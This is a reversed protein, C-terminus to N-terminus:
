GCGSATSSAAGIWCSVSDRGARPSRGRALGSGLADTAVASHTQKDPDIGITVMQDQRKLRLFAVFRVEPPCKETPAIGREKDTSPDRRLRPTRSETFKPTQPPPHARDVPSNHARASQRIETWSGHKSPTPSMITSRTIGSPPRAGGRRTRAVPSLQAQPDQTRSARPPAASVIGKIVRRDCLRRNSRRCPACAPGLGTAAPVAIAKAEGLTNSEILPASQGPRAQSRRVACKAVELHTRPIYTSVHLPDRRNGSRPSRETDADTSQPSSFPESPDNSAAPAPRPDCAPRSRM